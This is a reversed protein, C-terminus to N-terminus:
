RPHPASGNGHDAKKIDIGKIDTRRNKTREIQNIPITIIFTTGSGKISKVDITGGLEDEIISRVTILGVGVGNPKTTGPETFLTKLQKNSMGCGTDSVTINISSEDQFVSIQVLKESSSDECAEVANSILNFCAQHFRLSNATIFIPQCEDIIIHIDSMRAKYALIDRAISIERVVDTKHDKDLYKGEVKIHQKVSDMFSSMRRSATVTKELMDKIKLSQEKCPSNHDDHGKCMEEIYLSIASLPSLLDHFIGRSLEGIHVSNELSELKNKQSTVLEQTRESVREELIDREVELLKESRRARDLSADIEKNSLWGIFSIFILMTSYAIIDTTTVEDYRWDPVNLYISEHIGLISLIMIMITATIFGTTSGLLANAIVIALVTLLLTAPLSAGWQWGTYIAGITDSLVLLISAM